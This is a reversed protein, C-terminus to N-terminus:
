SFKNRLRWVKKTEHILLTHCKKSYSNKEHYLDPIVKEKGVMLGRGGGSFPSQGGLTENGSLWSERPLSRELTGGRGNRWHSKKNKRRSENSASLGRGGGGIGGKKKSSHLMSLPHKRPNRNRGGVKEGSSGSSTEKQRSSAIGKLKRLGKRRLKFIKWV